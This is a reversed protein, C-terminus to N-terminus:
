DFLVNGVSVEVKARVANKLTFRTEKAAHALGHGHDRAGIALVKMDQEGIAGLGVRLFAFRTSRAANRQAKPVRVNGSARGRMGCDDEEGLCAQVLRDKETHNLGNGIGERRFEKVGAAQRVEVAERTIVQLGQGM